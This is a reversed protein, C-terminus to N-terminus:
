MFYSEVNARNSWCYCFNLRTRKSLSTTQTWMM